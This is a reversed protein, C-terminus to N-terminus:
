GERWLDAFGCPFSEYTFCLIKDNNEQRYVCRGDKRSISFGFEELDIAADCTETRIWLKGNKEVATFADPTLAPVGELMVTRHEQEGDGEGALFRFIGSQYIGLRLFAPFHEPEHAEDVIPRLEGDSDIQTNYIYDGQIELLIGKDDQQWGIVRAFKLLKLNYDKGKRFNDQTYEYYMRIRDPCAQRYYVTKDQGQVRVEIKKEM